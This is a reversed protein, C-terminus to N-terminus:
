ATVQQGKQVIALNLFAEGVVRLPVVTLVQADKEGPKIFSVM